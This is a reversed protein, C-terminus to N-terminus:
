QRGRVALRLVAQRREPASALSIPRVDIAPSTGAMSTMVRATRPLERGWAPVVRSRYDRSAAMTSGVHQGPKAQAQLAARCLVFVDLSM